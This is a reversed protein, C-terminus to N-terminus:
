QKPSFVRLGLDGDWVFDNFLRFLLAKLKGDDYVFVLAVFVNSLDKAVPEDNKTLVFFNAYGGGRLNDTKDRCIALFQSGLMRFKELAEATNGLFDVFKGDLILENAWFDTAPAVGSFVIGWNEFDPDFYSRFVKAASAYTDDGKTAKIGFWHIDRLYTKVQKIAEVLVLEGRRLRAAGEIGGLINFTAEITGLDLSAYKMTSDSM